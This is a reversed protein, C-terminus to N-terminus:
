NLKVVDFEFRQTADAAAALVDVTFLTVEDFQCFEGVEGRRFREDERGSALAVGLVGPRWAYGPVVVRAALMNPSEARMGVISYRGVPLVDDFTLGVNTWVGAVAAIASTARITFIEGGAQRAPAQDALWVIVSHIQPAAPTSNVLADLAENTALQPLGIYHLEVDQPDSPLNVAAAAGQVGAIVYRAVRKLSPADLRAYATAVTTSVMAAAGMLKNLAPVYVDNGQVRVHPDAVGAIRIDVGVPQISQYFAVTTFM